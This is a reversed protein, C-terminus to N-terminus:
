CRAVIPPWAISLPQVHLPDGWFSIHTHTHTHTHTLTRVVHVDVCVSTVHRVEELVATLAPRTLSHLLDLARGFRRNKVIVSLQTIVEPAMSDAFAGVCRAYYEGADRLSDPCVPAENVRLVDNIAAELAPGLTVDTGLSTDDESGDDPPFVTRVVRRMVSRCVAEMKKTDYATPRITVCTNVGVAVSVCLVCTGTAWLSPSGSPLLGALGTWDNVWTQIAPATKNRGEREVPKPLLLEGLPAEAMVRLLATRVVATAYLRLHVAYDLFPEMWQARHYPTHPSLISYAVLVCLVRTCVCVYAVCLAPPLASSLPVPVTIMHPSKSGRETVCGDDNIRLTNFPLPVDADRQPLGPTIDVETPTVPGSAAGCRPETATAPTRPHGKSPTEQPVPGRKPLIQAVVEEHPLDGWHASTVM